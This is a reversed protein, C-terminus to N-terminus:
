VRLTNKDEHHLSVWHVSKLMSKINDKWRCMDELKRKEGATLMCVSCVDREERWVHCRDKGYMESREGYTVGIRGM